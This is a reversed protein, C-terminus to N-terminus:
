IKIDFSIQFDLKRVERRIETRKWGESEGWCLSFWRLLLVQMMDGISAQWVLEKFVINKDQSKM